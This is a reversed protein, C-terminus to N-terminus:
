ALRRVDIALTFASTTSAAKAEPSGPLPRRSKVCPRARQGPRGGELKHSGKIRGGLQHGRGYGHRAEDLGGYTIISRSSIEGIEEM